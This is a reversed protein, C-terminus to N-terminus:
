TEKWLPHMMKFQLRSKSASNAAVTPMVQPRADCFTRTAPTSTIPGRDANDAKHALKTVVQQSLDNVNVCHLQALHEIQVMLQDAIDDLTQVTDRQIPTPASSPHQVDKIPRGDLPVVGWVNQCDANM